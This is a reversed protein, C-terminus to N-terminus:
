LQTMVYAEFEQATKLRTPIPFRRTTVKKAEQTECYCSLKEFKLLLIQKKSAAIRIRTLSMLWDVESPPAGFRDKLESYLQNVEDPSEMEGLRHYLELRLSTEPIYHEPLKAVRKFEVRTEIFPTKVHRKLANITRKLLKCYLHFGITSVHGAQKTGLLDGAGRIELDRMALKMGGGYGSTEVLASLRRRAEEPLERKGPVLFYAYAPRDSRGVRGRLQYLDAMGFTHARDILITNANPIDIGNELITTAVLIDSKGSKFTHFIKDIEDAKMQGHVVRVKAQPLLAQIMAAKDFITEVRNHIFYAQGDRTLERLLASKIVEQETLSIITKIPLRDHPPTSITSLDRLGILSSYLTRPIPTASLTLCDISSKRKKLAEKAKVGFRQEEDIIMLGLNKFDVDQSILRHTGILIDVQGEAVKKLTERVQKPKVFRSVVGVEIPFNAMRAKFNDYHQMALVTTPVLVAVQKGSDMVAKAAARMAVETKGYGVDGCILRDMADSAMMDKKLAAIASLQDDTEEYPFELEFLNLDESDPGSAHGGESVRKAQVELMEKAYGIIAKEAKIRQTQWKNTGLKNLTPREERTGIYRSVLHSQTLPVYLKSGEAYELLMFEEQEGNLNKQKEIGLFRGVGSHMHVIPDGMELEHFESAPLPHSTRRKKRTTVTRGLLESGSLIGRKENLALFGRNLTGRTYAAKFPLFEKLRKEDSPNQVIVEYSFDDPLRELAIPEYPPTMRKASLSQNFIEFTVGGGEKKVKSLSEVPDISLYLHPAKAQFLESFPLFLPSKSGPLNKFAVVHDEIAVLEDFVILPPKSFYDLLTASPENKLLAVEDSPPLFFETATGTSKQNGPDFTRIEDVTDGFFEIRYPEQASLPFIDVIGGRLAFEGKESVISERRYGLQMLLKPITDFPIEQGVKWHILHSKLVKPAAVKQLVAQLPAVLLPNKATLLTNLAEFRDGMLDLSPAIEDGPLTEWSPFAVVRDSAFYRLDDLLHGGESGSTIVLIPGQYHSLIYAKASSHLGELLVPHDGKLTDLFTKIFM